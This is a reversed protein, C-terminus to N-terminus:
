HSKNRQFSYGSCRKSAEVIYLKSRSASYNRENDFYDKALTAYRSMDLRNLIGVVLEDEPIVPLGVSTRELQHDDVRKRIAFSTEHPQMRINAWAMQVRERDQGPNGTQRAIHTARIRQILYLLNRDNYNEIWDEDDQVECRSSESLQGYTLSFAVLKDETIKKTDSTWDKHATLYKALVIKGLNGPPIEAPMEPEEDEDGYAPPITWYAFCISPKSVIAVHVGMLQLFEIPKNERASAGFNLTPLEPNHGKFQPEKFSKAQAAQPFSRGRGAGREQIRLRGHGRGSIDQSKQWISEPRLYSQYLKSLNEGRLKSRYKKTNPFSHFRVQKEGIVSATLRAKLFLTKASDKYKYFLV